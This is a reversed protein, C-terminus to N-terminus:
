DNPQALAVLALADDIDSGYPTAHQRGTVEIWEDFDTGDSAFACTFSRQEDTVIVAFEHNAGDQASFALVTTAPDISRSKLLARLAGWM